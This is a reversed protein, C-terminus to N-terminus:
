KKQAPAGAKGAPAAAGSTTAVEEETPPLALMRQVRAFEPDHSAEEEALAGTLEHHRKVSSKGSRLLQSYLADM